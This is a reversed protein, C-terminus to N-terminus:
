LNVLSILNLSVSIFYFTFHLNFDAFPATLLGTQSLYLLLHPPPTGCDATKVPESEAFPAALQRTGQAQATARASSAARVPVDGTLTDALWCRCCSLGM